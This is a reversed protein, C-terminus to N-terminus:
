AYAENWIERWGIKHFHPQPNCEHVKFKGENNVEEVLYTLRAYRYWITLMYVVYFTM